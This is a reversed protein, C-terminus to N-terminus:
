PGASAQHGQASHSPLRMGVSLQSAEALKHSQPRAHSEDVGIRKLLRTQQSLWPEAQGSLFATQEPSQSRKIELGCSKGGM